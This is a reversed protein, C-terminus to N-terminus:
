SVLQYITWPFLCVMAALVPLLAIVPSKQAISYAGFADAPKGGRVVLPAAAMVLAIGVGAGGMGLALPRWDNNAAVGSVYLCLPILLGAGLLCNACRTTRKYMQLLHAQRSPSDAAPLFRKWKRALWTAVAAGILGSLIPRIHDFDM